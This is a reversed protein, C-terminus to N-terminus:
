PWATIASWTSGIGASLTRVEALTLITPLHHPMSRGIGPQRGIQAFAEHDLGASARVSRSSEPLDPAGVVFELNHCPAHLEDM